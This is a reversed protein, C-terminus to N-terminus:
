LVKLYATEAKAYGARTYNRDIAEANDDVLASMQVAYAGSFRAWAEFEERLARGGGNSWWFLEVAVTHSPAFFLPSLLGGIMGGESIFAAGNDVVQELVRATAEADYPVDKWPSAAHFLRGMEVMRPIDAAVARV